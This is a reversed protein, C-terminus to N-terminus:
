KIEDVIKIGALKMSYLTVINMIEANHSGAEYTETCNIPVIVNKDLNHECIYCNLTKAFDSVCIDTVCGVVIFNKINKNAELWLGFDKTLFGNTSNKNIRTSNEDYAYKRLEDIIGIEEKDICHEIYAKFERSNKTHCDKFFVKKSDKFKELLSAINPVMAKVRPSAMNGKHVFGNVMDVIVIATEDKKFDSVSGVEGIYEKKMELLEKMM